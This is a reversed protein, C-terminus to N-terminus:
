TGPDPEPPADQAGARARLAALEEEDAANLQTLVKRVAAKGGLIVGAAALVDGPMVCSHPM